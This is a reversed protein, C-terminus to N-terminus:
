LSWQYSLLLFSLIFSTFMSERRHAVKDHHSLEWEKPLPDLLAGNCTHTPSPHILTSCPHTSIERLSVLPPTTAGQRPSIRSTLVQAESRTIHSITLGCCHCLKRSHDHMSTSLGSRTGRRSSLRSNFGAGRSVTHPHPIAGKDWVRGTPSIGQCGRAQPRPSCGNPDARGGEM